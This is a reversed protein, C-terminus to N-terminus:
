TSPRIIPTAAPLTSCHAGGCIHRKNIPSPFHRDTNRIEPHWVKVGSRSEAALGLAMKM